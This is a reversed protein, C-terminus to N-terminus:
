RTPEVLLGGGNVVLKDAVLGGTLTSRGNITVTGSPATVYGAFTVNGNLTLGGNAIRLDLWEPHASSGATSNVNLDNKLVIIVPGVINLVTNGNLTLSQFQYVSPTTAGAVGLTFGSGGNASFSGYVGAPVAVSGVNGNLTLDKLTSWAGIPDTSKNMAVNRTGAPQDPAAIVPMPIPDTRRVLYRLLANGNLTVTTNTPTAAGTGDKLGAFTPRGNLQVTPTGPVLLDGTMGSNGNFTNNEPLLVQVSGDIDGNITLGRRVLATVGVILTGSQTGSYNSANLTAVVAYSGPLTPATTSGAYTITVALNAPTTTALVVRPTGDYRQVLPALAITAPAKTIVDIIGGSANLYNGTADTFTWTDAYTGANTHTTATLSLGALSEGKVGKATGTATHAAGDYVVGYSTVDITAAAKGITDTVTGNAANYNGTADVFKWADAFTGAVTHTTASLDLGALTEGLVGKASGNAVHANGDYIVTYPTVAITATAKTLTIAVSGSADSYNGAPDKFLWAATGGPVNTFSAGLNLMSALDAGAVGTATGTSGHASGDYVGSYGQVVITATAPTIALNAGTYGLTYNNNAVLTGRQIAYPSGLVTEGAVRTLGGTLVSAATDSLQLGTTAYTLAPDASGYVKSQASAVVALPAPTITLAATATTIAYNTLTPNAVLAASITYPGGAVNEGATRSYTATVNDAALFGALTGTFVPDASGYVKTAVVPTVSAPKPLIALSAGAFGLTYNSGATLTGQAIAYSGVNEGATRVLSGTFADGQVLAGNTIVFALAPDASGYIKAVTAAAVNLPAPTIALTGTTSGSIWALDVSAAVAHTGANIPASSSGGDYTFTVPLGAPSTTATAPKATGDYLYTPTTLAITAVAPNVTVNFTKTAPNGAADIVSLTVLTTGLSFISGSAPSGTVTVNGSVLDSATASFAVATGAASTATAVIDSPVDIVPATTDVVTITFSGTQVNGAADTASATVTTVGLSFTSGSVKSLTVPLSGDVNDTASAAFTVTAGAASTAEAVLNAPLALVPKTADTITLTFDISATAGSASTANVTVTSTGIAAPAPTYTWSWAGPTLYKVVKKNGWSAIYISRGAPPFCTGHPQSLAGDGSGSFQDLYTGTATFKQVRHNFLDGVYVNGSPDIGVGAPQNFQGNASGGTGWQGLYTGTSTFYQVRHNARDAVYVNGNSAIRIGQNFNFQGAGSGGSGWKRLYQGNADFVMIRSNGTDTVFVNGSGDVAVCYANNLQGNGSGFSGFSSLVNLNLDYRVVSNGNAITYVVNRTTDVAVGKPTGSVAVSKILAGTSDFKYLKAEDVVYLNEQSDLSLEIPNGTFDIKNQYSWQSANTQTLTGVSATLTVAEGTAESFTGANTATGGQPITVATKDETLSISHVMVVFSGTSINGAADTATATVTTSGVAFMSGSVKSLVPTIAGDHSDIASVTFTVAAGAANTTNVQVPGAPLTLVPATTDIVLAKNAGLSSAAGPAPLTCNADQLDAASSKISGGGLTLASTSIYDLDAATDGAQVTYNFILTTTGSGSAYTATRDTAGTELSLTPTGSVTVARSFNVQVAIVSNAKYSGNASTSSVSTVVPPAALRQFPTSGYGQVGIKYNIGLWGGTDILRVIITNLGAQIGAQVTYTATTPGVIQAANLKTGNLFIDGFNDPNIVFTLQPSTLDAPAYFRIRFDLTEPNSPSVNADSNGDLNRSIWRTTGALNGWPHNRNIGYAPLWTAQGDRSCDTNPDLVGPGVDTGNITLTQLTQAHVARPAFALALVALAFLSAARTRLWGSFRSPLM